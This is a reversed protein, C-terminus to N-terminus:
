EGLFLQQTASHVPTFKLRQEGPALINHSSSYGYITKCALQPSMRDMLHSLLRCQLWPARHKAEVATYIMFQVVIRMPITFSFPLHLLCKM